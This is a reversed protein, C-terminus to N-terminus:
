DEDLGLIEAPLLVARSKPGAGFRRGGNSQVAGALRLLAQAWPGTANASGHWVTGKFVRVLGSHNEAVALALNEVGGAHVVMFRVGCEAGLALNRKDFDSRSGGAFGKEHTKWQDWLDDLWRGISKEARDISVPHALLHRLCGEENGDEGKGSGDVFSVVDRIWVDMRDALGALGEWCALDAAALLSGYQDAARAEFGAKLFETRAHALTREWRWWEGAVWGTLLRGLAEMERPILSLEPADDPIRDLELIAMRSRDQSSLSPIIISSFLFCSRAQFQQAQHDSSGRLVVNGSCAERALKIIKQAKDNDDESEMEDLAVPLSDHQVAQWVGAPSADASGILGGGFSAEILKQLLTSKGSGKRGTVWALPRWDIAGGLRACVIWGLMLHADLDGRRWNWGQLLRFLRAGPWQESRRPRTFDPAPLPPRASYLHGGVEGPTEIRFAEAPAKKAKPDPVPGVFVRDGCHLILEGDPGVWAGRGRLWRAPDWLGRRACDRMLIMAADNFEVGICDGAKNLKPFYDELADTESGFLGIVNLRNHEQYTFSILQGQPDLYHCVRGTKGLAKVPSDPPLNTVTRGFGNHGDGDEPAAGTEEYERSLRDAEDYDFPPDGPPPQRAAVPQAGQVMGRAMADAAEQSM